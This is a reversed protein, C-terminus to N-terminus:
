LSETFRGLRVLIFSLRIKHLVNHSCMSDLPLFSAPTTCETSVAPRFLSWPSDRTVKTQRLSASDLLPVTLSWNKPCNSQSSHRQRPPFTYRRTPKLALGFSLDPAFTTDNNDLSPFPFPFRDPKYVLLISMGEDTGKSIPLDQSYAPAPHQPPPPLPRKRKSHTQTHADTNQLDGLLFTSTGPPALSLCPHPIYLYEPGFIFQSNKRPTLFPSPRLSLSSPLSTSLPASTYLPSFFDM